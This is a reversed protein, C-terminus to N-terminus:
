DIGELGLERRLPMNALANQGWYKSMITKTAKAITTRVQQDFASPYADKWGVIKHPAENEFVIEVKRRLSPYNIQYVKLEKGEFDTGQYDTLRTTAEIPKFPLHLLRVVMTSPLIEVSGTPLMEPNIRIRNFLEDELIADDVSKVQDAENEFYSHLTMKYGKKQKNVQMYTHGCWEQSSTSVKLTAPHEQTNVPTFVSTMMSYDYIGTAFKRLMNTKLIPISNPNQYHDNKVQKDTLFDETVFIMVAEGPHVDQYRNQQLEYRTIEAKGQYWYDSLKASTEGFNNVVTKAYSSASTDIDTSTEPAKSCSISFLLITFLLTYKM